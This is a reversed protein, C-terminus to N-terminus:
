PFPNSSIRDMGDDDFPDNGAATDACKVPACVALIQGMIDPFPATEVGPSPHKMRPVNLCKAGNETWRAELEMPPSFYSMADGQWVLSQGASTFVTGNGCYDAALLKLTAQRHEWARFLGSPQTHVTNRTLYLKALTHGACGINFWRDDFGNWMTKRATNVRDGEFVVAEWALLGMLEPSVGDNRRLAERKIVGDVNSCVNLAHDVGGGPAALHWELTYTEVPPPTAAPPVFYQMRGVHMITLVYRKGTFVNRIPFWAGVLATGALTPLGTRTGTIIGNTVRLDYSQTSTRIQARGGIADIAFGELNPLGLLNLEHFDIVDIVPSNGGCGEEPCPGGAAAQTVVKESEVPEVPEVPAAVVCAGLAALSLAVAVRGSRGHM